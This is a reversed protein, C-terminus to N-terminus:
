QQCARCILREVGVSGFQVGGGHEQARLCVILQVGGRVADDTV